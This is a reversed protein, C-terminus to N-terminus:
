HFKYLKCDFLILEVLGGGGSVLLVKGNRGPRAARLVAQKIENITFRSDIDATLSGSAVLPIIQDFVEKKEKGNAKEYWKAM